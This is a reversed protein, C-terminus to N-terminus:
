VKCKSGQSGSHGKNPKEKGGYVDGSARRCEIDDGDGEDGLTSEVYENEEWGWCSELEVSLM